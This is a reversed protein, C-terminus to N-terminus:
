FCGRWRISLDASGSPRTSKLAITELHPLEPVAMTRHVWVAETKAGSALRCGFMGESLM